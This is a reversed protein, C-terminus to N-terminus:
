QGGGKLRNERSTGSLWDDIVRHLAEITSACYIEVPPGDPIIEKPPRIAVAFGKEQVDIGIFCGERPYDDTYYLDIFKRPIM